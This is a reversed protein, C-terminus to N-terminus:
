DTGCSATLLDIALKHSAVGNIRVGLVLVLELPTLSSVFTSGRSFVIIMGIMDVDRLFLCLAKGVKDGLCVRM